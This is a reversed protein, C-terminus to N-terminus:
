CGGAQWALYFTEVDAGDVGGDANTDAAADAEAWTVFFDEVDRGDVGGDRNFDAPCPRSFLEGRLIFPFDQPADPALAPKGPDLVSTWGTGFGEPVLQLANAGPAARAGAITAAPVYVPASPDTCTIQWEIWYEGPPLYTNATTARLEWIQRSQDPATAAPLPTTNFVRYIGTPTASILRNSTADGFATLVGHGGPLGNWIRVSVSAFPNSLAGPSYAFFSVENVRWGNEADVEFDDAFRFSGASATDADPHCSFGAFYNAEGATGGCESWQKGVPAPVGSGTQDAAALAPINPDTSANSYLPEIAGAFGATVALLVVSPLAPKM